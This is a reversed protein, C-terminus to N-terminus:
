KALADRVMTVLSAHWRDPERLVAEFTVWRDPNTRDRLTHTALDAYPEGDPTREATFRGTQPDMTWEIPM